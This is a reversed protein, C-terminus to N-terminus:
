QAPNSSETEREILSSSLVEAESHFPLKLSSTQSSAQKLEAASGATLFRLPAPAEMGM